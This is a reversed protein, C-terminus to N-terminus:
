PVCLVEATYITYNADLGNMQRLVEATTGYRRAISYATDNERVVYPRSGPCYASNAVPLNIVAGPSLDQADIGYTAMLEISSNQQSAISYLTDNAQVQYQIVIIPAAVPAPPVATPEILVLPPLTAEVTPQLPISTPLDTTPQGLDGAQELIPPTTPAAASQLQVAKQPDTDLTVVLGEIQVVQPGGATAATAAPTAEGAGEESPRLFLFVGFVAALLVAAVIVFM